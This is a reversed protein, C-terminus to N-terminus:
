TPLDWTGLYSEPSLVAEPLLTPGTYMYLCGSRRLYSSSLNMLRSKLGSELRLSARRNFCTVLLRVCSRARGRATGKFAGSVGPAEKVKVVAKRTVEQM